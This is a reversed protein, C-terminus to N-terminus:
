AIEVGGESSRYNQVDYKPNLKVSIKTGFMKNVKELGEKRAKLMDDVSIVLLQNNVEIEEETVQAKKPNYMKVGLDRFFMELVKDRAMLWDNIGDKLNSKGMDVSRFQEIISNDSIVARQGLALKEFFAKISAAVNQDDAVPYSTARNNITYTSITSEIDAIMRAYKAIFTFLGSDVKLNWARYEMTTNYIVECDKGITYQKYDVVKPNAFVLQTPQYYEDFNFINSFPTFLEGTGKKRLFGCYGLLILSDEISKKNTSKPIGEYEFLDLVINYLKWFWFWYHNEVSEGNYMTKLIKKADKIKM